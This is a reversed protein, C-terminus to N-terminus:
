NKLNIEYFWITGNKPLMQKKIPFLSNMCSYNQTTVIYPTGIKKIVTKAKPSCTNLAQQLKAIRKERIKYMTQQKTPLWGDEYYISRGTLAALFPTEPTLTDITTNKTASIAPIFLIFNNQPVLKSVMQLTMEDTKSFVFNPSSFVYQNEIANVEPFVILVVGILLFVKFFKPLEDFWRGLVIATPICLLVQLIWFFQVTDFVSISQIFFTPVLFAILVSILILFHTDNRWFKKTALTKIKIFIVMQLGINLFIFLFVAFAYLLLIGLYNKQEQYVLLRTAWSLPQMTATQMYHAYFLFPAWILGGQGFNNPFYTLITLVATLFLATIISFVYQKKYRYWLLFSYLILAGIAIFGAYIKIQSLIGFFLGVLIAYKWSEKIKLLLGIGAVLFGLSLVIFPNIILGIPQVLINDSLNLNPFFLLVLPYTSGCFYVLFLLLNKAARKKVVDTLLLFSAGYLFSILFPFYRYYLDIIPFHYFLAFRSLLFDYFYHFGLLSKGAIGPEQPPFHFVQNSSYAVHRIGDTANTAFFQLGQSTPLGSFFLLSAFATAGVLLVILSIWDIGHLKIPLFRKRAFFDLLWFVGCLGIFFVPIQPLNGYAFGYCLLLFIAIGAFWSIIHTQVKTIKPLSLFQVFLYGPIYFSVFSALLFLFFGSVYQM